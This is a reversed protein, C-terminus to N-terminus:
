KLVQFISLYPNPNPNSQVHVFRSRHSTLLNHIGHLVPKRTIVKQKRVTRGFWYSGYFVYLKVLKAIDMSETLGEENCYYAYFKWKNEVINDWSDVGDGFLHAHEASPNTSQLCQVPSDNNDRMHDAAGVVAGARLFRLTVSAM